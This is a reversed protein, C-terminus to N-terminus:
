SRRQDLTHQTFSTHAGTEICLRIQMGITLAHAHIAAQNTLILYGLEHRLYARRNLLYLLAVFKARIDSVLNRRRQSKEIEPPLLHLVGYNFNSNTTAQIRGVHNM